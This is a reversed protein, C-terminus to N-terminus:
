AGQKSAVRREIGLPREREDALHSGSEVGGVSTPEDVTVHLRRVDEDGLLGPSLVAVEGVEAERSAGIRGARLALRCM